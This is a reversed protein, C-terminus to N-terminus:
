KAELIIEQGLYKKVILGPLEALQSAFKQLPIRVVQPLADDAALKILETQSAKFEASDLVPLIRKRALSKQEPTAESLKEINLYIDAILASSIGLKAVITATEKANNFINELSATKGLKVGNKAITVSNEMVKNIDKIITQVNKEQSYTLKVEQTNQGSSTVVPQTNTQPVSTAPKKAPIPPLPKNYGTGPVAPKQPEMTNLPNMLILSVILTIVASNKM